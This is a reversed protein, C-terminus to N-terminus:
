SWKRSPTRISPACTPSPGRVPARAQADAGAAIAANQNNAEVRSALQNLVPDNFLSWWPGRELADAPVAPIWEGAEKFTVAEPTTPRQYTPGVACGSVLLALTALALLSHPPKRNVSMAVTSHVHHTM